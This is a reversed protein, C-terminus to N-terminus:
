IVTVVGGQKAISLLRIPAKRVRESRRLYKLVAQDSPSIKEDILQRAPIVWQSDPAPTALNLPIPRVPTSTQLPIGNQSSTSIDPKEATRISTQDM